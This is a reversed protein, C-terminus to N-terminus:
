PLMAYNVRVISGCIAFATSNINFLSLVFGTVFSGKYTAYSVRNVSLTCIGIKGINQKQGYAVYSIGTVASFISNVCFFLFCVCIDTEAEGETNDTTTRVPEFKTYV